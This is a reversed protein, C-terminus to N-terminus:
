VLVQEALAPFGFNGFILLYNLGVNVPLAILTIFMSVRTQGLADICSRVVTYGFLPIIGFSIARLFRFAINRVEPELNMFHLVPSLALGGLILVLMSVLLSLWMGQMVQYAVDKNRRSGILHSVIPTIGMLIGSLGTQIPIWLSTGIAVGALDNTGFKGSMNTDFFTIASLAIQTILIPLLIHLFQGAKQKLSSTQKM